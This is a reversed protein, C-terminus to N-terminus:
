KLVECRYLVIVLIVEDNKWQLYIFVKSHSCLKSLDTVNFKKCSLKSLFIWQNAMQSGELKVPIYSFHSWLKKMAFICFGESHSCLKASDTMELIEGPLTSTLIRQHATQSGELQVPSYSFHIWLKKMALICFGESHSCMKVFDTM